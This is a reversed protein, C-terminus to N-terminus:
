QLSRLLQICICFLNNGLAIIIIPSVAEDVLECLEALSRYQLRRFEWYDESM